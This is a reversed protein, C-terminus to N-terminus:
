KSCFKKFHLPSMKMHEKFIKRFHKTDSYGVEYAIEEVSKESQALLHCANRIRVSQLYHGFTEGTVSKFTKSIYPLSFHMEECIDVLRISQRYHKEVYQCIYAVKEDSYEGSAGGSLKCLTSLIIEILYCRILEQYGISKQEFALSMKEFLRRIEGDDDDFARNVPLGLLDAYHFKILYCSAIERFSTCGMLSGDIFEPLFLCNIIEFQEDGDEYKHHTGYDIIFYNGSKVKRTETSTKHVASGACVYVLEFYDHYHMSTARHNRRTIKCSTDSFEVKAKM